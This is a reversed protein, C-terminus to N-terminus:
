SNTRTTKLKEKGRWEGHRYVADPPFGTEIDPAAWDIKRDKRYFLLVGEAGPRLAGQPSIVNYGTADIEELGRFVSLDGVDQVFARRARVSSAGSENLSLDAAVEVIRAGSAPLRNILTGGRVIMDFITGGTNYPLQEYMKPDAREVSGDALAHVASLYAVFNLRVLDMESMGQLAGTEVLIVPTGWKSIQDGFARPNFEDDYRGIHNKIFPALAKIM